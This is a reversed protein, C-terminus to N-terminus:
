PLPIREQWSKRAGPGERGYLFHYVSSSLKAERGDTQSGRDVASSVNLMGPLRRWPGHPTGQLPDKRVHLPLKQSVQIPPRPPPGLLWHGKSRPQSGKFLM